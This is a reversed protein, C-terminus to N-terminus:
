PRAVKRAKGQKELLMYVTVRDGQQLNLEQSKHDYQSKQRQQAVKIREGALEWADSLGTVLESNYDDVDVMYPTSPQSLTEGPPM